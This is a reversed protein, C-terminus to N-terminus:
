LQLYECQVRGTCRRISTHVAHHGAGQDRVQQMHHPMALQMPYVGPPYHMGAYGPAAMGAPLGEAGPRPVFGYGPMAAYQVAHGGQM